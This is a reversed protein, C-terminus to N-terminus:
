LVSYGKVSEGGADGLVMVTVVTQMTHMKQMTHADRTQVTQMM